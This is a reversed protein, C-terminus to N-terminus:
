DHNGERELSPPSPSQHTLIMLGHFVDPDGKAAMLAGVMRRAKDLSEAWMAGPAALAGDKLVHWGFYAYDEDLNNAFDRKPVIQYDGITITDGNLWRGYEESRNNM